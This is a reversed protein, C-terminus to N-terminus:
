YVNRPIRSRKIEKLFKFCIFFTFGHIFLYKRRENRISYSSEDFLLGLKKNLIRFLLCLVTDFHPSADKYEKEEYKEEIKFM